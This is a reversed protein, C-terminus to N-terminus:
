YAMSCVDDISFSLELFLQVWWNKLCDRCLHRWGSMWERYLFLLLYVSLLSGVTFGKIYGPNFVKVTSPAVAVGENASRYIMYAAGIVMALAHDYYLFINVDLTFSKVIISIGLYYAFFTFAKAAYKNTVSQIREDKVAKLKLKQKKMGNLNRTTKTRNMKGFFIM